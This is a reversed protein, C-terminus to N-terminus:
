EATTEPVIKMYAKYQKDLEAYNVGTTRALIDPDQSGDYIAALCVVLADRYRGDDYHMLFNTMGAIQSYLKAIQPHTQVDQVGM